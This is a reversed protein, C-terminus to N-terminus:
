QRKVFNVIFLNDNGSLCWCILVISVTLCIWKCIMCIMWVLNSALYTVQVLLTAIITSVAIINSLGVRFVEIIVNTKQSELPGLCINEEGAIVHSRSTYTVRKMEVQQKGLALATSVLSSCYAERTSLAEELIDHLWYETKQVGNTSYVVSGLLSGPAYDISQGNHMYHKLCHGHYLVLISKDVKIHAAIELTSPVKSTATNLYKDSVWFKENNSYSVYPRRVQYVAIETEYHDSNSVAAQELLLKNDCSPQKPLPTLTRNGIECPYARSVVTCQCHQQYSSSNDLNSTVAISNIEDIPSGRKIDLADNDTLYALEKFKKPPSNTISTDDCAADTSLDGQISEVGMNNTEGSDLTTVINKPINAKLMNAHLLDEYFQQEPSTPSITRNPFYDSSCKEETLNSAIKSHSENNREVLISNLEENVVVAVPTSHHQKRPENVSWRPSKLVSIPPKSLQQRAREILGNTAELKLRELEIKRRTSDHKVTTGCTDDSCHGTKKGNILM